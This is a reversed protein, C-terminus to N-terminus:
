KKNLIEYYEKILPLIVNIDKDVDYEWFDDCKYDNTDVSDKRDLLPNFIPLYKRRNDISTKITLEGLEFKQMLTLYCIFTVIFTHVKLEVKHKICNFCRHIIKYVQHNESINKHLYEFLGYLGTRILIEITKYDKLDM